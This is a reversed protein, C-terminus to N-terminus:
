AIVFSSVAIGVPFDTMLACVRLDDTFRQGLPEEQM